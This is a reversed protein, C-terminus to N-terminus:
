IYPYLNNQLAVYLLTVNDRHNVFYWAMFIYMQKQANQQGQM